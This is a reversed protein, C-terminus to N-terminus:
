KKEAKYTQLTTYHRYREFRIRKRWLDSTRIRSSIFNIKYGYEILRTQEMSPEITWGNLKLGDIERTQASSIECMRQARRM